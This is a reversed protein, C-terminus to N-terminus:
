GLIKLFIGDNSGLDLVYDSEDKVFNKMISDGLIQFHHTM